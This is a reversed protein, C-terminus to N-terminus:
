TSEIADKAATLSRRLSRRFPGRLPATVLRSVYRIPVAWELTATVRTGDATTDFERTATTAIGSQIGRSVTRRPPDFELHESSADVAEGRDNRVSYEVRQGGADLPEVKAVAVLNPLLIGANDVDAFFSFVQERPAAIEISEVVRSV